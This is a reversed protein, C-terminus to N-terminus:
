FKWLEDLSSKQAFRHIVWGLAVCLVFLFLKLWRIQRDKKKVMRALEENSYQLWDDDSGHQYSDPM